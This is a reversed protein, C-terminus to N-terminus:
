FISRIGPLAQLLNYISLPTGILPERRLVDDVQGVVDLVERSDGPVDRNWRVEVQAFELGGMARDMIRMAVVPESGDPLANSNREDPRLLATVAALLACIAIAGYSVAGTRLLVFDILGSIRSLHRDILSKEQGVHVYNGIWTSCALPISTIVAVFTIVVGVVCCWGFERVIEHHALALSGFGIATTLSTLGCAMGVDHLGQRAAERAALGSARLRRIQVMLHVGDTLGVLSLLVPLVVDNFPNDQFDGFRLFGLTWFVGLSPTLAVVVVAAIGRFLILSMLAITGYGILQYRFQNVEHSKRVGNEQSGRIQGSRPFVM